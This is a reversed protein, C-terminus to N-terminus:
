SRVARRVRGAGARLRRALRRAEYGLLLGSGLEAVEAPDLRIVGASVNEALHQASSTGPIPITVPSDHLLWALAIQGPTAGHRTALRELRGGPRTLYGKALPAWPLFPIARAECLQLVDHSSCDALSYRNQVSAVDTVALAQELEGRTVNCVGVHAIKGEERLEVLSGLSEELPVRPDVAHLQYLEIREVRLRRLSEHCARRLHEPSADKSWRGPGQRVLGGKTAVLVGAPYPHLAEAIAEESSGPGYADATDILDVGLEVATRVLERAGRPDVPPGWVGPGTLSMAGFGLRRVTHGAVALTSM